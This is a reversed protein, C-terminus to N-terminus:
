NLSLRTHELDLTKSLKNYSLLKKPIQLYIKRNIGSGM